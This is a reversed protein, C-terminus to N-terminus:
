FPKLVGIAASCAALVLTIYFLTKAAKSNRYFLVPVFGLVLWILLKAYIWNPLKRAMGLRALLGFGAALLFFLGIGHIMGVWKRYAFQRNGGNLCHLAIGGLSMLVTFAGAIHLIKYFNYSM